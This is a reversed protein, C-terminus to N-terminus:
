RSFDTGRIAHTVSALRRSTKALHSDASDSAPAVRARAVFLPPIGDFYIEVLANDPHVTLFDVQRGVFIFEKLYQDLM